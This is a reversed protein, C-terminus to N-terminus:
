VYIELIKIYIEDLGQRKMNPVVFVKKRLLYKQTNRRIMSELAPM